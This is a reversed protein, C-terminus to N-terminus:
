MGNIQEQKRAASATSGPSGGSPCAAFAASRGSLSGMSGHLFDEGEAIAATVKTRLEVIRKLRGLNDGTEARVASAPVPQGRLSSSM